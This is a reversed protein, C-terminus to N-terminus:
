TFHSGYNKRKKRKKERLGKGFVCQEYFLEALRKAATEVFEEDAKTRVALIDRKQHANVQSNLSQDTM